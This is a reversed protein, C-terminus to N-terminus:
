SPTANRASTGSLTPATLTPEVAIQAVGSSIRVAPAGQSSSGQAWAPYIDLVAWRVLEAISAGAAQTNAQHGSWGSTLDVHSGINGM